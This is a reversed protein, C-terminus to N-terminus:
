EGFESSVRYQLKSKYRNKNSYESAKAKRNIIKDCGTIFFLNISALNKITKRFCFNIIDTDHLEIFSWQKLFRPSSHRAFVFYSM